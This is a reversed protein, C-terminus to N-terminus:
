GIAFRRQRSRTQRLRSSNWQRSMMSARRFCQNTPGNPLIPPLRMKQRRCQWRKSARVVVAPMVAVEAQYVSAGLTGKQAEKSEEVAAAVLDAELVERM